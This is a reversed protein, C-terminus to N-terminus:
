DNQWDIKEIEEDLGLELAEDQHSELSRTPCTDQRINVGRSPGVAHYIRFEPISWDILIERITEWLDQTVELPGEVHDYYISLDKSKIFIMTHGFYEGKVNNAPYLMRVIYSGEPLQDIEDRLDLSRDELLSTQLTGTVPTIKFGHYNVLSQMKEEKLADKDIGRSNKIEITNYAAQRSIFASTVLSLYPKFQKVCIRRAEPDIKHQCEVHYRALFDLARATCVGGDDFPFLKSQNFKIHPTHRSDIYEFAKKSLTSVQKANPCYGLNEFIYKNGILNRKIKPEEKIRELYRAKALRAEEPMEEAQLCSLIFVFFMLFCKM